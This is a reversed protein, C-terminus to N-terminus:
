TSGEKKRTSTLEARLDAVEARLEENQVYLDSILLNHAATLEAYRFGDPRRDQDYAVWHRLGADHAQEAIFGPYTHRGKAGKEEKLQFTVPELDLVKRAARLSLPKINEKYRESSSTRVIRGGNGISAGTTGGGSLDEMFIGSAWSHIAEAHLAGTNGASPTATDYSQQGIIVRTSDLVVAVGTAVGFNTSFKGTINTGGKAALDGNLPQLPLTQNTSKIAQSNSGDLTIHGLNVFLGNSSSVYAGDNAYLTGTVAVGQVSLNLKSRTGTATDPSAIEVSPGLGSVVPNIWGEGTETVDRTWFKIVGGAVDDSVQMALLGATDYLYVGPVGGTESGVIDVGSEGEDQRTTLGGQLYQLAALSFARGHVEVVRLEAGERKLTVSEGTGDRMDQSLAHAISQSVVVTAFGDFGDIQDVDAKHLTAPQGNANDWADVKDDVAAAATLATALQITSADDDCSLYELVVDNLRLYGGDEDFDAVDRVTLTTAGISAASAITDGLVEVHVGKVVAHFTEDSM